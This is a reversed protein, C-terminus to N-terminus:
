AGDSAYKQPAFLMGKSHFQAHYTTVAVELAKDGAEMRSICYEWFDATNAM